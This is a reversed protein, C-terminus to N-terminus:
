KQTPEDYIERLLAQERELEKLLQEERQDLRLIEREIGHPGEGALGRLREKDNRIRQLEAELQQIPFFDGMLM